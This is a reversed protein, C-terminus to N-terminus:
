TSHHPQLGLDGVKLNQAGTVIQVPEDRGVDLQCVLLHDSDPHPEIALVKAVLVNDINDAESEFFEVKSGSMTMRDSYEQPTCDFDAFEKAWGLPMRM